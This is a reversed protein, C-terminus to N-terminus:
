GCAEARVEPDPIAGGAQGQGEGRRHNGRETAAAGRHPGCSRCQSRAGLCGRSQPTKRRSPPQGRCLGVARGVPRATPQHGSRRDLPGGACAGRRATSRRRAGPRDATRHRRTACRDGGQGRHPDHAGAGREMREIHRRQRLTPTPGVAEHDVREPRRALGCRRAHQRRARSPGRRRCSGRRHEPPGTRDASPRATDPPQGGMRPHSFRGSCRCGFDEEM